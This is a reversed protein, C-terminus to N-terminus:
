PTTLDRPVSDHNMAGVLPPIYDPLISPILKANVLDDHHKTKKKTAARSPGSGRATSLSAQVGRTSSAQIRVFMEKEVMLDILIEEVSNEVKSLEDSM